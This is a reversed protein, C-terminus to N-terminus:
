QPPFIFHLIYFKSKFWFNIPWQRQCTRKNDRFLSKMLQKDCAWVLHLKIDSTYVLPKTKVNSKRVNEITEYARWCLWIFFRVAFYM